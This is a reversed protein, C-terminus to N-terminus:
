KNGEVLEMGPRDALVRVRVVQAETEVVYASVVEVGDLTCNRYNCTNKRGIGSSTTSGRSSWELIGDRKRYRM